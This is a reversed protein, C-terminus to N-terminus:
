RALLELLRAVERDRDLLLEGDEIGLRQRQRVAEFLELRSRLVRRELRVEDALQDGGLDLDAGAAAVVELPGCGPEPLAARLKELEGIREADREGSRARM